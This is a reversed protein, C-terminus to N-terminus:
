KIDLVVPNEDSVPKLDTRMRKPMRILEPNRELHDIYKDRPVCNLKDSKEDIVETIKPM